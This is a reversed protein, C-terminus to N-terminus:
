TKVVRNRLTGIGGVEIEIVDGAQMPGVGSPTGTAILDGPELTMVESIFSVLSPVDFIFDNINSDQMIIGNLRARVPADDLNLATEIWPGFPAFTDFSKARTWQGDKKQLDRATVDNFCTYGLVYRLAQAKPVHRARRKMVIALEAEYDLRQCSPPHVIKGEPPLIATLPKLFLIPEEPIPLRMEEVHAWYNLGVAAIKTPVCPPLLRLRAVPVGAKATAYKGFPDGRMEHVRGERVVGYKGGAKTAYRVIRM